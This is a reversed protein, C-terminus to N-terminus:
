GLDYGPHGVMWGHDAARQPRRHGVVEVAVSFGFRFRGVFAPNFAGQGSPLLGGDRFDGAYTVRGNGNYDVATVVAARREEGQKSRSTLVLLDGVRFDNITM